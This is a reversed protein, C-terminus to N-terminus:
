VSLRSPPPVFYDFIARSAHPLLVMAENDMHFRLDEAGESMIALVFDGWPSTIIGCDNRVGKLSGSKSAVRVPPEDDDHNLLDYPLYRTLITNYQQQTLIQYMIESAQPSILTRQYIGKLLLALDYPTSLGIPGPLSFDIRKKIETDRLGLAHMAHNVSSLGIIRLVMNTAVNDSVTIMLRLVDLLSLQLGLTLTQLVGSGEVLDASDLEVLSKLDLQGHEVQRLAEVLIPLKITSATEMPVMTGFQVIEGTGLHEAFLAYRGSFENQIRSLHEQITM